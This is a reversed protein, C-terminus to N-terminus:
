SGGGPTASPGAEHLAVRQEDTLEAVDLVFDRVRGFARPSLHGPGQILLDPLHALDEEVSEGRSFFFPLYYCSALRLYRVEPEHPFTAVLDDLRALGTQVHGWKNGPWFAHKGRVVEFAAGYADAIAVLEPEARTRGAHSLTSLDAQVEQIRAEDDVSLFYLTRIRELLLPVRGPSAALAQNVEELEDLAKAM